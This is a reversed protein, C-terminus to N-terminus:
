TTIMKVVVNLMTNESLHEDGQLFFAWVLNSQRKNSQCAKAAHATNLNKGILPKNSTYFRGRVTKINEWQYAEVVVLLLEEHPKM